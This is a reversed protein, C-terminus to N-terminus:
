ALISVKFVVQKPLQVNKIVVSKLPSGQLALRIIKGYGSWLSQIVEKEKLSSAETKQLIISKFNNNM